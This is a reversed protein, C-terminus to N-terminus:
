GSTAVHDASVLVIVRAGEEDDLNPYEDVGMYEGALQNIHDVAGEETTTAEGRVSVFRYPDDPDVVSVSVRPDAAVNREKRRGRVTNFRVYERDVHDVWVPTVHPGGDPMVTGVHAFSRKEFIDVHSEPIV